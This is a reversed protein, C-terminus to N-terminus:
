ETKGEEIEKMEEIEGRDNFNHSPNLRIMCERRIARLIDILYTIRENFKPSEFQHAIRFNIVVNRLPRNSTGQKLWSVVDTDIKQFKGGRHWITFINNYDLGYDFEKAREIAFPIKKHLSTRTFAANHRYVPRKHLMDISDRPAMYRSGDPMIVTSNGYIIDSDPNIQRSVEELVSPSSFEDGANMFNIFDGTAAAIGKNMADYIGKDPESILLDIRDGYKQLLEKTGDTSAGDVVIYEVDPYTQNIVSKLTPEIVDVANYCVTVITFKM